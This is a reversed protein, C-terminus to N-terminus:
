VIRWCGLDKFINGEVSLSSDVPCFSHRTKLEVRPRAQRHRAIVSAVFVALSLTSFEARAVEPNEGTRERAAQGDDEHKVRLRVCNIM